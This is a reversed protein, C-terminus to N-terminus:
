PEDLLSNLREVPVFGEITANFDIVLLPLTKPSYFDYFYGLSPTYNYHMSIVRVNENERVLRNIEAGQRKSVEREDFLFLITHIGPECLTSYKKSLIYYLVQNINYKQKLFDYHQTNINSERDLVSLEQGLVFLQESLEDLFGSDCPNDSFLGEFEIRESFSLLNLETNKIRLQAESVSDDAFLWGSFFGMFYVFILLTIIATGYNKRLERLKDMRQGGPM